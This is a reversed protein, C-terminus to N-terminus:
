TTARSERHEVAATNAMGGRSDRRAAGRPVGRAFRDPREHRGDCSPECTRPAVGRRRRGGAAGRADRQIGGQQQGMIAQAQRGMGAEAFQAMCSSAISRTRRSSTRGSGALRLSRRAAVGSAWRPSRTRRTRCAWRASGELGAAADPGHAVARLLQGSRGDALCRPRRADYTPNVYSNAVSATTPTTGEAGLM